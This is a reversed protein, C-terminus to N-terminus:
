ESLVLVTPFQIDLKHVQRFNHRTKRAVGVERAIGTIWSRGSLTESGLDTLLSLSVGERTFPGAAANSASKSAQFDLHWVEVGFGAHGPLALARLVVSYSGSGDRKREALRYWRWIKTGADKEL